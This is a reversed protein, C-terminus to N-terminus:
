YKYREAGCLLSQVFVTALYFFKEWAEHSSQQRLPTFCLWAKLNHSRKFAEFVIVLNPLQDDLEQQNVGLVAGFVIESLRFDCIKRLLVHGWTVCENM